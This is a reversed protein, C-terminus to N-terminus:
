HWWCQLRKLIRGAAKGDGFPHGVQSLLELKRADSLLAVLVARLHEPETGVLMAHGQEIADMRETRERLVLVPKGLAPAEEQVGGSDTLILTAERMTDVFALYDLPPVLEIRRHGSLIDQAASQVQPNPHLPYRLRIDDFMDVLERLVTFVGRLPGGFSERRHATLLLLRQPSNNVPPLRAVTSMLADIGTNGTICIQNPPIGETELAASDRKTPAFHWKAIRSIMQRYGEEPFPQCLNHTRLGAEIHGFAIRAHFAALAAGYTTATDGQALVVDIGERRLLNELAPLMRGILEGPTQASRMLDLDHDVRIGFWSLMPELLERHQATLVVVCRAWDAQQIAKIVPAMKIVEPRTGVICVINRLENM